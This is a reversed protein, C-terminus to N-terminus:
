RSRSLFDIDAESGMGGPIISREFLSSRLRTVRLSTSPDCDNNIQHSQKALFRRAIVFRAKQSLGVVARLSM